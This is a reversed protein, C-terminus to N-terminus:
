GSQFPRLHASPVHLADQAQHGLLARGVGIQRGVHRHQDPDVPLHQLQGVLQERRGLRPRQDGLDEVRLVQGLEVGVALEVHRDRNGLDAAEPERAEALAARDRRHEAVDRVDDRRQVAQGQGGDQALQDGLLPAQDQHDAGGAGALAGRERRHQLVAVLRHGTVDERDLIRDFVQEGVLARQDVLALDAAVGGRQVGRQLVRQALRRVADQDALDAVALRHRRRDRVRQRAM